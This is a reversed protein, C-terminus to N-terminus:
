RPTSRPLLARLAARRERSSIQVVPTAMVTAILFGDRLAAAAENRVRSIFISISPLHTAAALPLVKGTSSGAVCSITAWTGSPCFSSMSRATLAARLAKSDPGHGRSDGAGLGTVTLLRRVGSERMAEILIRTAQSFLTTGSLISQPGKPAGLSQIVADAGAVAAAVRTKDLADGAIKVLAPAELPISAAGRAFARVRHGAELARKVTELGIGRSAGIVLITAM